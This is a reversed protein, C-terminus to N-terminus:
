RRRKALRRHCRARWAAARCCAAHWADDHREADHREAGVDCALHDHRQQGREERREAARVERESQELSERIEDDRRELKRAAPDRVPLRSTPRPDQEAVRQGGHQTREIGDGSRWPGCHEHAGGVADAFAQALRRAVRQESVRHFGADAAACEADHAREVVGARERAGEGRKRENCEAERIALDERECQDRAEDAYCRDRQEHALGRAIGVFRLVTFAAIHLPEHREQEHDREGCEARADVQEQERARAFEACARHLQWEQPGHEM